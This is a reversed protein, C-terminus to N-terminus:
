KSKQTRLANNSLAKRLMLGYFETTYYTYRKAGRFTCIVALLLLFSAHFAQSSYCMYGLVFISLISMAAHISMYVLLDRTEFHNSEIQRLSVAKPRGWFTKGIVLCGGGRMATAFCTDYKPVVIVGNGDVRDKRPLKLGIHLMWATYLVFWATYGVTASGAVTGIAFLSSEGRYYHIEPLYDLKFINPWAAHVEEPYWRLTYAVMPPFIHIFLGTMTDLDHFLLAVFPLVIAAGMLPGCATGLMFIFLEKRAADSLPLVPTASHLVLCILSLVAITNMMWCYDIYSLMRNLPKAHIRFYFNAPLLFLGELLYLLWFSQPYAAFVYTVLLSNLVGCAFNFERFLGGAIIPKMVTRDIEALMREIAKRQEEDGCCLFLPNNEEQLEPGSHSQLFANELESDTLMRFFFSLEDTSEEEGQSISAQYYQETDPHLRLPDAM